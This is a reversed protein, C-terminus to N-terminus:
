LPSLADCRPTSGQPDDSSPGAGLEHDDAVRSASGPRQDNDVGVDWWVPDEPEALEQEAVPGFAAFQGALEVVAVAVAVAVPGEGQQGGGHEAGAHEPGHVADLREAVQETPPLHDAIGPM